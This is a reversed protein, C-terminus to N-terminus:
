ERIYKDAKNWAFTNEGVMNPIRTPVKSYVGYTVNRIDNAAIYNAQSADLLYIGYVNDEFSNNTIQNKNTKIYMGSINGSMTNQEIINEGSNDYL